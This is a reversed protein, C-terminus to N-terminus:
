YLNKSTQPLVKQTKQAKRVKCSEHVISLVNQTHFKEFVDHLSKGQRVYPGRISGLQDCIYQKFTHSTMAIYFKANLPTKAVFACYMNQNNLREEDSGGDRVSFGAWHYNLLIEAKTKCMKLGFNHLNIAVKLLLAKLRIANKHLTVVGKRFGVYQKHFYVAREQLNHHVAWTEEEFCREVDGKDLLTDKFSDVTEAVVADFVALFFYNVSCLGNNYAHSLIRLTREKNRWVLFCERGRTGYELKACKKWNGRGM